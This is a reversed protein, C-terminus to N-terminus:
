DVVLRNASSDQFVPSMKESTSCLANGTHAALAKMGLIRRIAYPLYEITIQTNALLSPFAIRTIQLACTAHEVAEKLVDRRSCNQHQQRRTTYCITHVKVAKGPLCYIIGCELMPM